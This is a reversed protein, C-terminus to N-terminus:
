KMTAVEEGGDSGAEVEAEHEAVLGGKYLRPTGRRIVWFLGHLSPAHGTKNKDTRLRRAQM